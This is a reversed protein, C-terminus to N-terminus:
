DPKMADYHTPKIETIFADKTDTESDDIQLDSNPLNNIENLDDRISTFENEIEQELIDIYMIEAVSYESHIFKPFPQMPLSINEMEISNEKFLINLKFLRLADRGIIMDYRCDTNIVRAEFSDFVRNSMFEPLCINQLTVKSNSIFEGAITQSKMQECRKGCVNHPLSTYKIFSNNSGSDLLVLLPKDCISNQIINSTLITYPILDEKKINNSNNIKESSKTEKINNRNIENINGLNDNMINNGLDINPEEEIM